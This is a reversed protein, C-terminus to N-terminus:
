GQEEDLDIVLDLDATLRAHGHLVVAEGDVVACRIGADNLALFLPELVAM